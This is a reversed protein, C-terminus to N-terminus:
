SDPVSHEGAPAPTAEGDRLPPEGTPSLEVRFVKAAMGTLWLYHDSPLGEYTIFKAGGSTPPENTAKFIATAEDVEDFMAVYLMSAGAQRGSTDVEPTECRMGYTHLVDLHEKLEDTSHPKVHYSSAGLMYSKKIDDLDSLSSFVVTPIIAWEPNGKLYQLVSFGDGRPMKLDTIVFTPYEYAKRDAYKGEGLMYSIAEAADHVQHIPSTM